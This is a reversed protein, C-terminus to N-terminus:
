EIPGLTCVLCLAWTLDRTHRIQRIYQWRIQVHNSRARLKGGSYEQMQECVKKCLRNYFGTVSKNDIIESVHRATNANKVEAIISLSSTCEQAVQALFEMSVNSGKVHTQKVGMAM